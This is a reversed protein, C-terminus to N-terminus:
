GTHFANMWNLECVSIWIELHSHFVGSKNYYTKSDCLPPFLIYIYIYLAGAQNMSFFSMSIVVICGVVVVLACCREFILGFHLRANFTLCTIQLWHWHIFSLQIITSLLSVVVFYISHIQEFVPQCSSLFFFLFFSYARIRITVVFLALWMCLIHENIHKLLESILNM